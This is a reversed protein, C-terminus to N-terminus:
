VLYIRAEGARLLMPSSGSVTSLICKGPPSVPLKSDSDTFNLAIVYREDGGSREYVMAADNVALLQFSGVSLARHERRLRLLAKYLSLLSGPDDAESAVNCTAVHDGVPLWPIGRTFGAGERPFWRMPTRQPDRGLGKGPENVEFPDRVRDPTIVVDHMGIEDGYYMTPTGRLTLLLV